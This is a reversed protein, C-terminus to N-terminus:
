FLKIFIDNNPLASLSTGLACVEKVLRPKFDAPYNPYGKRNGTKADTELNTRM